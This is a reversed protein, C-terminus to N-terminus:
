KSQFSKIAKTTNSGKIGDIADTYLGLNKLKIQIRKLEENVFLTAVAKSNNSELFPKIVLLKACTEQGLIGDENINATHQYSKIANKSKIGIQGDIKGNYFGNSKLLIQLGYGNRVPHDEYYDSCSYEKAMSPM